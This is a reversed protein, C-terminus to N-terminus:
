SRGRWSLWTGWESEGMLARRRLRKTVRNRSEWRFANGTLSMRESLPQLGGSALNEGWAGVALPELLRFRRNTSTSASLAALSPLDELATALLSPQSHTSTAHVTLPKLHVDL